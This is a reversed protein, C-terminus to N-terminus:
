VEAGVIVTGVVCRVPDAFATVATNPEVPGITETLMDLAPDPKVVEGVMTGLPLPLLASM